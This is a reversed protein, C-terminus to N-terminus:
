ALKGKEVASNPKEASQDTREQKRKNQLFNDV